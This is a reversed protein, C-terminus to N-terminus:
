FFLATDIASARFGQNQSDNKLRNLGWYIDKNTPMLSRHRVWVDWLEEAFKRFVTAAQPDAPEIQEALFEARGRSAALGNLVDHINVEMEKPVDNM